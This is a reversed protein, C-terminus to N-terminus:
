IYKLTEMVVMFLFAEPVKQGLFVEESRLSTFWHFANLHFKAPTYMETNGHCGDIFVSRTCGERNM